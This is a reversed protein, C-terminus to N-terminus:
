RRWWKSHKFSRYLHLWHMQYFRIQFGSFFLCYPFLSMNVYIEM